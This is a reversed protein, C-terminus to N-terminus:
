EWAEEMEKAETQAAIAKLTIGLACFHSMILLEHRLEGDLERGQFETVNCAAMFPELVQTIGEMLVPQEEMLEVMVQAAFEQPEQQVSKELVATLCERTVKPLTM